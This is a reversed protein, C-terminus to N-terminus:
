PCAISSFTPTGSNSVTLRWCTGDPSKMIIGSTLSNLYIDGNEVQLKSKPNTTGIGFNGNGAVRAKEVRDIGFVLPMLDPGSASVMLGAGRWSELINWSTSNGIPQQLGFLLDESSDGIRNLSTSYLNGQDNPDSKIEMRGKNESETSKFQIKHLGITSNIGAVELNSSPTITGIGVKGTNFYINNLSNKGWKEDGSKEAYLAYPVSLLQSTGITEYVGSGALDIEVKIFHSNSGWNIAAFSSTPLTGKGIEINVIGTPSTKQSHTESYITTGSITSQLISIKLSVNKENLLIGNKDRLVAQYKFAQPSQAFILICQISLFLLFLYKKM